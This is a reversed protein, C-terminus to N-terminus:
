QGPLPDPSPWGCETETPLIRLFANVYKTIMGTLCDRDRDTARTEGAAMMTFVFLLATQIHQLKM